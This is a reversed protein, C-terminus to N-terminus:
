HRMKGGTLPDDAGDDSPEDHNEDADQEDLFDRVEKPIRDKRHEQTLLGAQGLSEQMAESLRGEDRSRIADAREEETLGEWWRELDDHDAV